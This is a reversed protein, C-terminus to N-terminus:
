SSIYIKETTLNVSLSNDVGFIIVNKGWKGNISFNSRAVIEIGYGSFKYEHSDANKTLKVSGFM